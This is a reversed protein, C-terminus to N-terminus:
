WERSPKGQPRPERAARVIAQLTRKKAQENCPGCSSRLNHDALPSGGDAIAVIHDVQSAAGLCRGEMRLQCEWGDRELTRLRAQRWAYSSYFRGRRMDGTASLTM